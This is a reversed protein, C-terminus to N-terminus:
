QQNREAAAAAVLLRDFTWRGAVQRGGLDAHQRRVHRPSLGLMAGAEKTDVIDEPVAQLENRHLADQQGRAAVELHLVEAALVRELHLVRSSVIIDDSRARKIVWSVARWTDIVSPGALVVTGNGLGVTTPTTM